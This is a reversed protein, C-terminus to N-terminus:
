CDSLCAGGHVLPNAGCHKVALQRRHEDVGHVLLGVLSEDDVQLILEGGPAVFPRLREMFGVGTYARPLRHVSDPGSTGVRHSEDLHALLELFFARCEGVHDLLVLVVDLTAVTPLHAV